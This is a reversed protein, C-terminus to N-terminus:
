EIALNAVVVYLKLLIVQAEITLNSMSGQKTLSVRTLWAISSPLWSDAKYLSDSGHSSPPVICHYIASFQPTDFSQNSLIAAVALVTDLM